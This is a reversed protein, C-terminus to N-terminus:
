SGYLVYKKGVKGGFHWGVRRSLLRRHFCPLHARLRGHHGSFVNIYPTLDSGVFISTSVVESKLM